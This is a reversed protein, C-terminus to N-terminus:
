RIVRGPTARSHCVGRVRGGRVRTHGRGCSSASSAIKAIMADSQSLPVPTMAGASTAVAVALAVSCLSRIM